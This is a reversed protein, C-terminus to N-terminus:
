GYIHGGRKHGLPFLSDNNEPLKAIPKIKIYKDTLSNTYCICFPTKTFVKEYTVSTIPFTYIRAPSQIANGKENVCMKKM